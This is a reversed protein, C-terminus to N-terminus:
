GTIVTIATNHRHLISNLTDGAIGASVVGRLFLYTVAGGGPQPVVQTAALHRTEEEREAPADVTRADREDDAAHTVHHHVRHPLVIIVLHQAVHAREGAEGVVRRGVGRLETLLEKHGRVHSRLVRALLRLLASPGQRAVDATIMAVHTGLQAKMIVM